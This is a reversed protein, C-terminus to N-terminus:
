PGQRAALAAAAVDRVIADLGRTPAGGSARRRDERYGARAPAARPLRGAAARARDPPQRRRRGDRARRARAHDGRGQSGVNFVEGAAARSDALAHSAAEVVDLVHAFCRTQRGDGFVACSAAPSRRSSSARSSWATSPGSGRAPPASCAPSRHRGIRARADVRAGPEGRVGQRRRAVGAHGLGPRRSVRVADEASRRRAADYGYVDSSSAIVVPRATAVRRDALVTSTGTVNTLASHLPRERVLRRRPRRGSARRCRLLARAPRDARRQHGFRGCLPLAARGGAARRERPPRDLPRRRRRRCHGHAILRDALHSGIFGAGGTILYSTM